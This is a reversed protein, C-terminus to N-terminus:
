PARRILDSETPGCWQKAKVAKDGKAQAAQTKAKRRVLEIEARTKLLSLGLAVVEEPGPCYELDGACDYLLDIAVHGFQMKSLRDIGIEHRKITKGPRLPLQHFRSAVAMMAPTWDEFYIDVSDKKEVIL